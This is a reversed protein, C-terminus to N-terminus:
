NEPFCDEYLDTWFNHGNKILEVAKEARKLYGFLWKDDGVKSKVEEIEQHLTYLNSGDFRFILETNLFNQSLLYEMKEYDLLVLNLLRIIQETDSKISYNPKNNLFRQVRKQRDEDALYKTLWDMANAIHSGADQKWRKAEIFLFIVTATFLIAEWAQGIAGVKNWFEPNM